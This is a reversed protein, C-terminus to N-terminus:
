SIPSFYPHPRIKRLALVLKTAKNIANTGPETTSAHVPEGKVLTHFWALEKGVTAKRAFAM